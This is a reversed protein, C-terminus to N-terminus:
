RQSKGGRLQRLPWEGFGPQAPREGGSKENAVSSFDAGGLGRINPTLVPWSSSPAFARTNTVTPIHREPPKLASAEADSSQSRVADVERATWAGFMKTAVILRAVEKVTYRQDEVPHLATRYTEADYFRQAVGDFVVGGPLEVWAHPIDIHFQPDFLSGHVVVTNAKTESDLGSVFQTATEYCAKNQWQRWSPSRWAEPVETEQMALYQGRLRRRADKMAEKMAESGGEETAAGGVRSAHRFLAPSTM